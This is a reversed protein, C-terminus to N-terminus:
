DNEEKCYRCTEPKSVGKNTHHRKHANSANKPQPVGKLAASRLDKEAQTMEKGYNPNKSGKKADSIKKLAEESFTRGYAPHDEGFKGFNPNLEGTISGSREESWKRKQWESHKPGRPQPWGKAYTNGRMRESVIKRREETWKHGKSSKGGEAINLLHNGELRLKSIWYIEALLLEDYPQDILEQLVDVVIMDSGHKAIWDNVPYNKQNPNNTRKIHGKL